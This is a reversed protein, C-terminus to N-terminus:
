LNAKDVVKYDNLNNDKNALNNKFISSILKM